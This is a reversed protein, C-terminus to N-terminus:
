IATECVLWIYISMFETEYLLWIFIRVYETEYPMTHWNSVELNLVKEKKSLMCDEWKVAYEALVNM